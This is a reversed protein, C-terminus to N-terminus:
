FFLYSCTVVFLWIGAILDNYVTADVSLGPLCSFPRAAENWEWRNRSRVNRLFVTKRPSPKGDGVSGSQQRQIHIAVCTTARHSGGGGGNSLPSSWWGGHTYIKKRRKKKCVPLLAPQLGIVAPPSLSCSQSSTARVSCIWRREWWSNSIEM